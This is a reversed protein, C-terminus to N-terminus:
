YRVIFPKLEIKCEPYDAVMGVFDDSSVALPAQILYLIKTCNLKVIKGIEHLTM